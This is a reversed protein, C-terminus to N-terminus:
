ANKAPMIKKIVDTATRCLFRPYDMLYRGSLRKPEHLLRFLFRLNYKEAWAPIVIADKLYRDFFDGCSIAMGKYGADRLAILFAENRGMGMGVLVADPNRQMVLAVKQTLDGYGHTGGLIHIGTYHVNLKDSVREDIAPQGGVLMLSTKKEVAAKFFLDALSSPEFEIRGAKTGTLFACAYAVLQSSPLVVNINELQATYEAHQQAFAWSSPNIFTVTRCADQKDLMNCVDAITVGTHLPLGLLSIQQM